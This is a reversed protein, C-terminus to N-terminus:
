RTQGSRCKFRIAEGARYNMEDVYSKCALETAFPPVTTAHVTEATANIQVVMLVVWM